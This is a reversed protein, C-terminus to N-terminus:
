TEIIHILKMKRITEPTFDKEKIHEGYLYYYKEAFNAKANIVAPGYERHLKGNVWWEKREYDLNGDCYYEFEVAPGGIRHLVNNVYWHKAGNNAYEIAPGDERHLFKCADDAFWCTKILGGFENFFEVPGSIM